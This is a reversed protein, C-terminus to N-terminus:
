RVFARPKLYQRLLANFMRRTMGVAETPAEGSKQKTIWVSYSDTMISWESGVNINDREMRCLESFTCNQWSKAPAKAKM